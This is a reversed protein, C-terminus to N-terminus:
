VAKPVKGLDLVLGELEPRVAPYIDTVIPDHGPVLFARDGALSACTRYGELMDVMDYFVIFPKEEDVEQFLHVADSALFVPGRDTNVTLAMQGRSHGGILHYDIGPAYSGHGNIFRLRNDYLLGVLEEVDDQHYATRFFPHTMDRGTISQMELDQITFKAKPFRDLNGVHDFHAHTLIVEDVNAADIGVKGLLDIPDALWTRNMSEVKDKKMGSDVVIVRDNGVIAWMFYDLGRFLENPNGGVFTDSMMRNEHRGYCFAYLNWTPLSM